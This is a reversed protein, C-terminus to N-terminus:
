DIEHQLSHDYVEYGKLGEIQDKWKEVFARIASEGGVKYFGDKGKAVFYSIGGKKGSHYLKTFKAEPVKGENVSEDISEDKIKLTRNLFQVADEYALVVMHEETGHARNIASGLKTLVEKDFGDNFLLTDVVEQQVENDYPSLTKELKTALEQLDKDEMKEAAAQIKKSAKEVAKIADWHDREWGENLTEVFEEFLMGYKLKKM